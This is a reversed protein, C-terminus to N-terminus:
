RQISKVEREPWAVSALDPAEDRGSGASMTAAIFFQDAPLLAPNVTVQVQQPSPYRWTVLSPDGIIFTGDAQYVYVEAPWSIGTSYRTLLEIDTGM